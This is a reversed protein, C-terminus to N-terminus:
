VVTFDTNALTPHTVTGVTAILIASSGAGTGDADYYLKGTTTDYILRDSADQATKTGAGSVFEAATLTGVGALGSFQALGLVFEDAGSTFDTILKENGSAASAFFKFEDNGAGGTLTDKGAAGLISDDNSRGTIIEAAGTGNITIDDDVDFLMKKGLALYDALSLEIADDSADLKDIFALGSIIASIVTAINVGTDDITIFDAPTGPIDIADIQTGTFNITNDTADIKDVNNNDLAALQGASM